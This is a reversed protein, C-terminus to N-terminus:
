KDDKLIITTSNKSVLYKKAVNVIDEVTLSELNKEYELLPKINGRVFYNGFLSAVDSSSELSYIFDAKTNIKIKDIDKKSVKGAQIQAIIDLIEKEIKLADINENAVAMFIFLGPDKLELNYAYISNVLRKKDVLVKQLISSKGSSLLQSLASLAVQDKHEFNPIHYAMAIMQVSSDKYITARREGDQVPEVMHVSNSIDKKNKIDKFNKKVLSFVEDKKIDGSVVVIANKPQYYRSHFDKIDEIKWNQIDSMFGIPTWHYPHYIYSNNFLRFQLYGMPNNDTRWRREEAVVDREPQFEKDKLNLNQMLEAFLELSKDTNKSATKIFYHTYDFSTGANNVGGFGKVIEDFEGAKLNKTSKFNLHELMHAIGSKGMIEDRSGVKYFVNVSVVNSGNEMPIAVVELGNKLTKTYYNPLSNASMLEGFITIIIFLKFFINM